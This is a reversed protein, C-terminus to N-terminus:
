PLRPTLAAPVSPLRHQQALLALLVAADAWPLPAVSAPQGAHVQEPLEGLGTCHAALWALLRGAARHQGLEADHLAFFATEASWATSADGPWGTGPRVGGGPLTLLPQSTAAAQRTQGSAPAFPPGTFTVSADAGGLGLPLRRYGFVAFQRRMAAALRAAASAWHSALARDGRVAAIDAAARLGTLLPACTGLTVGVSDEWYDM